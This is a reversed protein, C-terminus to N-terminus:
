SKAVVRVKSVEPDLAGRVYGGPTAAVHQLFEITEATFEEGPLVNPIGPPYASLSETSVRGVADKSDVVENPALWAARPLMRLIGAEPLARREGASYALEGEPKLSNLANLFRDWDPSRGPGVFAVICSDTSIEPYIAQAVLENLVAHGNLGAQQVDIAVRLPDTGVIEPLKWNDSAIGFRGEARIRSRLEEASEISRAIRSEGHQLAERALDLSALLLSSMSTSQTVMFARQVLVQLEDAFPGEALQIMASQTLSGGLKHTSSVVLDAGLTIPHPPLNPHFGFHAGWAADVLLPVGASHAVEAFAALDAVAGFYSPSVMYVGKVTPNEALKQALDNVSAGHAIGYHDDIRPQVFVPQLGSLIAGDIFSSHASRQVLVPNEVQRFGGLVIAAIRNAQSAGNTLFWVRRAGWAEAALKQAASLPNDRGVDLGPLLPTVDRELLQDGFFETLEPTAAEDAGHGPINLRLPNRDSFHRLADAYPTAM